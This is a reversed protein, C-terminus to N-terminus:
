PIRFEISSMWWVVHSTRCVINSMHFEVYSRWESLVNSVSCAVNARSMLGENVVYSMWEQRSTQSSQLDRKWYTCLVFSDYIIVCITQSMDKERVSFNNAYLYKQWNCIALRGWFYLWLTVKSRLYNFSLQVNGKVFLFYM